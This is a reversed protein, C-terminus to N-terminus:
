KRYTRQQLLSSLSATIVILLLLFFILYIPSLFLWSTSLPRFNSPYLHTVIFNNLAIIIREALWWLRFETSHCWTILSLMYLYVLEWQRLLAFFGWCYELSRSYFLFTLGLLIHYYFYWHSCSLLFQMEVIHDLLLSTFYHSVILM